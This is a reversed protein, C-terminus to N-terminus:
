FVAKSTHVTGDTYRTVVINVGAFPRNSVRGALDSYTVRQVARGADVRSVGTVISESEVALDLPFVKYNGTPEQGAKPSIRAPAGQQAVPKQIIAHFTYAEAASGQTFSAANLNGTQDSDYQTRNWNNFQWDVEFAGNLNAGNTVDGVKAPVVFRGKDKDWVAFTILAYEQIKPNLFYYTRNNSGTFTSVDGSKDYGTADSVGKFTMFNAPCYYNPQYNLVGSESVPVQVPEASLVIRYNEDDAYTGKVTGAVMYKNQLQSALFDGHEINSFDLQVWNKQEWATTGRLDSRYGEPATTAMFGDFDRMYDIVNSPDTNANANNSDFDVDKAWLINNMAYVGMLRDSVIYKHGEVGKDPHEIWHLPTEIVKYYNTGPVTIWGLYNTATVETVTIGENVTNLTTSVNTTSATTVDNYTAGDTSTSVKYYFNADPEASADIDPTNLPTKITNNINKIENYLATSMTVETGKSTYPAEAATAGGEPDFTMSLDKRIVTMQTMADNVIIRYIGAPIKFASNRNGPQGYGNDFDAYLPKQVGGANALEEATIPVNDHTNESAVLRHGNVWGDWNDEHSYRKSLSFYGFAEGSNDAFSGSGKFYIDLYYGIESNYNFEPGYAHWGGSSTLWFGNNADGLLYLEDAAPENFNATITVASAPMTFTYVGTADDYSFSVPNNDGDVITMNSFTYGENTTIAYNVTSGATAEIVNDHEVVDGGMAISGGTEPSCITTIGYYTPLAFTAVIHVDSAPMTFYYSGGLTSSEELTVPVPNNDEDTITVNTIQYGNMTGVFFHVTEGFQSTQRTVGEIQLELAGEGLTIYGGNEPNCETTIIHPDSPKYLRINQTSDVTGYYLSRFYNNDHNYGIRYNDSTKRPWDTNSPNIFRIRANYGYSAAGLGVYAYSYYNHVSGEDYLDYGNNGNQGSNRDSSIRLYNGGVNFTWRRPYTLTEDNVTYSGDKVPLTNRVFTILQENGDVKVKAHQDHYAYGDVPATIFTVNSGAHLKNNVNCVGEKKNVSLAKSKQWNVILYKGGDVIQSVDTVLDFIDGMDKDVVIEISGFRVGKGLNTFHILYDLPLGDPYSKRGSSASATSIWCADYSNGQYPATITGAKENAYETNEGISLTTPGWYRVDLNGESANDLCHFVIKKIRYKSSTITIHSNPQMLLYNANNLGGTMTLQVGGSQIYYVGSGTSYQGMNRSITVTQEGAWATTIALTLLTLFTFLKKIM